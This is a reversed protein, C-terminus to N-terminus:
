DKYCSQFDHFLSESLNELLVPIRLPNRDQRVAQKLVQKRDKVWKISDQRFFLSSFLRDLSVQRSELEPSYFRDWLRNKTSLNGLGALEPDINALIDMVGIRGGLAAFHLISREKKDLKPIAGFQLLINVVDKSCMKAAVHFPTIGLKNESNPAARNQLLRQVLDFDDLEAAYHLATNGLEDSM